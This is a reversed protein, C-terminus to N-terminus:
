GYRKLHSYPLKVKAGSHLVDMLIKVRGKSDIQGHVVGGLGELPGEKVRVLDGVKLSPKPRILGKRDLQQRIYIVISDDLPIPMDGSGIIRKVGRAWKVDYYSDPITFNAFLYNPFLPEIQEQLRGKRFRVERIKPLFVSIGKKQFEGQVLDESHPKTYIVYWHPFGPEIWYSLFDSLETDTKM